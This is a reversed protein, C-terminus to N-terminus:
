KCDKLLDEAVNFGLKKAQNFDDCAKKADNGNMKYYQGRYFLGEAFKPNMKVATNYDSLADGLLKLSEKARGRYMYAGFNKPDLQIIKDFDNIAKQANKNQYYAVGRYFIAERFNPNLEIAKSFKKVVNDLSTEKMAAQYFDQAKKINPDVPPAPAAKVPAQQPATQQPKPQPPPPNKAFQAICNSSLLALLLVSLIYRM